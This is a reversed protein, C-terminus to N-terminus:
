KEIEKSYISKARDAEKLVQRSLLVLDKLETYYNQIDSNKDFMEDSNKSHRKVIDSMASNLIWRICDDISLYGFSNALEFPIAKKLDKELIEYVVHHDLVEVCKAVNIWCKPTKPKEIDPDHCYQLTPLFRIDGVAPLIPNTEQHLYKLQM